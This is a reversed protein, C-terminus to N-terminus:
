KNDREFRLFPYPILGPPKKDKRFLLLIKLYLGLLYVIFKCGFKM